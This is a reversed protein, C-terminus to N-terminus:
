QGFAIRLTALIGAICLFFCGFRAALLAWIKPWSHVYDEIVVQLGLALHTFMAILLLVILLTALPRSVWAVFTTYDSASLAILSAAFWLTLPVLAVATVRELWWAAVGAKASGLGRARDLPSQM